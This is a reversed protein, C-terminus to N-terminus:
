LPAVKRVCLGHGRYLGRAAELGKTKADATDTALGTWVHCLALGIIQVEVRWLTCGKPPGWPRGGMRPIHALSTLEGPTTDM